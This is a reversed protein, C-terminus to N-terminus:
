RAGRSAAADLLRARAWQDAKEISELTLPPEPRHADLVEDVLATLDGFGIAKQLFLRVAEEDAANLVAPATGGKALAKRALALGPCRAPDPPEFDLSRLSGLELRPLSSGWREPYSLAYLLPLRMDPCSLQAIVSGDVLEVLAHVISQPHILVEVRESDIGFLWRAEIIEFGKNVLTACDVTIREGMSWTPHRLVEEPTAEHLTALDRKLFPGGSATVIIRRVDGVPRGDLCQHLGGHESDVPLIEGGHERAIEALLEGALVVSEKNALAVKKSARLASVTSRLGASGVLANVVVDAEPDAALQAMGEAGELVDGHFRARARAAAEPDALAIRHVGFESAADVLAADNARAGLSVFRIRDRFERGIALTSAGISGTAGLLAVRIM